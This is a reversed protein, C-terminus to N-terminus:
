GIKTKTSLYIKRFNKKQQLKERKNNLEPNIDVSERIEKLNYFHKLIFLM